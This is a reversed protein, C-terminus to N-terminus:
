GPHLPKANSSGKQQNLLQIGQEVVGRKRSFENILRRRENQDQSDKFSAVLVHLQVVALIMCAKFQECPKAEELGVQLDRRLKQIENDLDRSM